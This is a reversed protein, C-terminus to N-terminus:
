GGGLAASRIRYAKPSIGTIRKFANSFASESAYGLKQALAGVPTGGRLDQEALRMRWQALYALPTTGAVAKFYTAFTARSMAAARALEELQWPRSPDGHMLRLAPAIRKDTVAHLWGADLVDTSEFHARLIQIFMLHALQASAVSAGPLNEERECVLQQLLWGLVPAQKSAGRIHILPPLVDLLLRCSEASLEVKGGIM